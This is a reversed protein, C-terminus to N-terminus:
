RWAGASKSGSIVGYSNVLISPLGCPREPRTRFIEDGVAIRDGSRVARLLDSYPSRKYDIGVIIPTDSGIGQRNLLQIKLNISIGGGSLAGLRTFGITM